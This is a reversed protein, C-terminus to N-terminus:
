TKFFANAADRSASKSKVAVELRSIEERLLLIRAELESVSLLALDQGIEHSVKKKPKDDDEM